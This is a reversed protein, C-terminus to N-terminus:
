KICQHFNYICNQPFLNFSRCICIWPKIIFNVNKNHKHIILNASNSWPGCYFSSVSSKRMQTCLKDKIFKLLYKTQSFELWIHGASYITYISAVACLMMNWNTEFHLYHPKWDRWKIPSFWHQTMPKVNFNNKNISM